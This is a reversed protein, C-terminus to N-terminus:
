KLLDSLRKNLIILCQYPLTRACASLFYTYFVAADRCKNQISINIKQIMKFRNKYFRYNINARTDTKDSLLWMSKWYNMQESINALQPTWAKQLQRYKSKEINKRKDSNKDAFRAAQLLTSKLENLKNEVYKEASSNVSNLDYDLNTLKEKIANQFREIFGEEKWPFRYFRKNQKNGDNNRKRLDCVLRTIIPNHDSMNSNDEIIECGVTIMKAVDNCIVHDTHNKYLGNKYTYNVNPFEFESFYLNNENVFKLLLKSFRKGNTFDTNFDGVVLVPMGAFEEVLNEIIQLNSEYSALRYSSNDDFPIHVGIILLNSQNNYDDIVIYSVDNNIFEYKELNINKNVLWSKGGFPRGKSRTSILFENHNLVNYSHGFNSNIIYNEEEGLWTETLYIIDINNDAAQKSLFYNNTKYNKINFSLIKIQQM